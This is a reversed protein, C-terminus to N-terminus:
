SAEEQAKTEKKAALRRRLASGPWNRYWKEAASNWIYDHLTARKRYPTYCGQHWANTRYLMFDGPELVTQVAGPMARAHEICLREAEVEDMGELRPAADAVARERELDPRGHSGPVYWLSSDTYLACSVQIFFLPDRLLQRMEAADVQPSQESIDRHWLVGWSQEAPELLVALTDFGAMHHDPSLTHQIADVLVPLELYNQFTRHDLRDLYLALPQLRQAQAGQEQRAIQRATETTRRLDRILAPPLISRFITFGDRYFDAVHQDSFTFSM